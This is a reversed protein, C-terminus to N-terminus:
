SFNRESAFRYAFEQAARSAFLQSYFDIDRVNELKETTYELIARTSHDRSQSFFRWVGEWAEEIEIAGHISNKM